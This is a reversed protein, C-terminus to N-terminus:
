RRRAQRLYPLMVEGCFRELDGPEVVSPILECSHPISDAASGGLCQVTRRVRESLVGPLLLHVQIVTPQRLAEALRNKWNADTLLLVTTPEAWRVSSGASRYFEKLYHELDDTAGGRGLVLHRCPASSELRRALREHAAEAQRRCWDRLPTAQGLSPLRRVTAQGLRKCVIQEVRPVDRELHNSPLLLLPAIDVTTASALAISQLADGVTPSDHGLFAVAHRSDADTQDLIEILRRALETSRADPSGHAIWLTGQRTAAESAMGRTYFLRGHPSLLIPLEGTDFLHRVSARLCPSDSIRLYRPATSAM